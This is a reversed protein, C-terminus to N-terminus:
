LKNTYLLQMFFQGVCCVPPTCSFKVWVVFPLPLLLLRIAAGCAMVSLHALPTYM